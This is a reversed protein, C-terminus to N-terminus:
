SNPWRVIEALWFRAEDSLKRETIDCITSMVLVGQQTAIPSLSVELPFESGNKNLGLLELNAGMPRVRPHTFFHKRHGNHLERFREPLLLEVNGGLLEERRYGFLKETQSNILIIKGAEDVLVMDQAAELLNEFRLEREIM